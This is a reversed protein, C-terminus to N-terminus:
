IPTLQALNCVLYGVTFPTVFSAGIMLIASPVLAGDPAGVEAGLPLLTSSATMADTIMITVKAKNMKTM